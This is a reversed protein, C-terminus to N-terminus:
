TNGYDISLRKLEPARAPSGIKNADAVPTLTGHHVHYIFGYIAVGAPVLPHNRIREVDEVVSKELNKFTLWEIDAATAASKRVGGWGTGECSSDTAQLHLMQRIDDDTYSQMGCGTHHVVFWDSTEMLACSVVLSRIADDSARGGANRIVHADGEKLGCFKAPDMRADMCTLIAIGRLPVGMLEAKAGFDAAYDKNARMVDAMANRAAKHSDAALQSSPDWKEPMATGISSWPMGRAVWDARWESPARGADDDSVGFQFGCSPCIEFSAGGSASRPRERLYPWHCVPCVHSM